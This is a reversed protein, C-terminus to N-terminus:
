GGIIEDRELGLKEELYPLAAKKASEPDMGSENFFYHLMQRCIAIRNAIFGRGNGGSSEVAQSVHESKTVSTPM